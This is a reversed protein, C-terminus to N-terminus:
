VMDLQRIVANVLVGLQKPSVPKVLYGALKLRAATKITAENRDATLMIVPAARLVADTLRHLREVFEIGGVPAMGVDCIILNPRFQGIKVLAAMGDEAEEVTFRGIMRLMAKVTKRMFPEDDVVLIRRLEQDSM